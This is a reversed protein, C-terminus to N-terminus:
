YSRSTGLSATRAKGMRQWGAAYSCMGGGHQWHCRSAANSLHESCVAGGAAGMAAVAAALRAAATM